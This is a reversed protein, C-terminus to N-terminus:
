TDYYMCFEYPHPRLNLPAIEHARKYEIWSRLSEETFVEGRLLFDCDQELALLAEDLSHPTHAVHMTSEASLDYSDRDIPEGPHIKNQIGDIVAMLIASFALYPNCSPDPCRFEV